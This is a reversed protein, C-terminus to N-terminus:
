LNVVIKQETGDYQTLIFGNETPQFDTAPLDSVLVTQNTMFNVKYLRSHFDTQAQDSALVYVWDGNVWLTGSMQYSSGGDTEDSRSWGYMLNPNGINIPEADVMGVRTYLNNGYPPVGYSLFIFRDGVMTLYYKGDIIREYSGDDNLFYYHNSGMVAGGTYYKLLTRGFKKEITIQRVYDSVDEGFDFRERYVGAIHSYLVAHGDDRAVVGYYEHPNDYELWFRFPSSNTISIHGEELANEIEWQFENHCFDWTIPLYTVDRFLLLPHQEKTSDYLKGNIRVPFTPISATYRDRNKTLAQPFIYPGSIDKHTVNLGQDTSWETDLSMYRTMEFTLPFYLINNYFIVPYQAYANEMAIDGDLWVEFWPLSVEVNKPAAEVPSSMSVIWCFALLVLGMFKKM